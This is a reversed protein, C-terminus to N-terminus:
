ATGCFFCLACLCAPCFLTRGGTRRCAAIVSAGASSCCWCCWSRRRRPFLLRFPTTSKRSIPSPCISFSISRHVNIDVRGGPISPQFPTPVITTSVSVSVFVSVSISTSVGLDVLVAALFDRLSVAAAAAAAAGVVVVVSCFFIWGNPAILVPLPWGGTRLFFLDLLVFVFLQLIGSAQALAFSLPCAHEARALSFSRGDHNPSRVVCFVRRRCDGGPAGRPAAHRHVQAVQVAIARVVVLGPVAPCAGHMEAARKFFGTSM